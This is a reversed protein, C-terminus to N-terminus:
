AGNKIPEAPAVGIIVFADETLSKHDIIGKILPTLALYLEPPRM